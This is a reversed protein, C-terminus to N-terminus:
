IIEVYMHMYMHMYRYFVKKKKLKQRRQYNGMLTKHLNLKFLCNVKQLTFKIIEKRVTVHLIQVSLVQVFEVSEHFKIDAAVQRRCGTKDHGKPPQQDCTQGYKSKCNSGKYLSWGHYCM